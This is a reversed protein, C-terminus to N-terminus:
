ENSLLKELYDHLIYITDGPNNTSYSLFPGFGFDTLVYWSTGDMVVIEEGEQEKEISEIITAISLKRINKEQELTIKVRSVEKKRGWDYGGLGDYERLTLEDSNIEYEFPESFSPAVSM